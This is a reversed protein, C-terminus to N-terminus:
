ECAVAEACTKAAAVCGTPYTVSGSENVGHCVEACTTGDPTPQAEECQLSALRECATECSIDDRPPLPRTEPEPLLPNCAVALTLALALRYVV